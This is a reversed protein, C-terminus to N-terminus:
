KKRLKATQEELAASVSSAEAVAARIKDQIAKMSANARETIQKLDANAKDQVVKVDDNAKDIYAHMCTGYAAADRNFEKIRLNYRGVEGPDTTDVGTPKVANTQPKKCQPDPYGAGPLAEAAPALISTQAGAASSICVLLALAIHRKM